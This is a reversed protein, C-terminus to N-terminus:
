STSFFNLQTHTSRGFYFCYNLNGGDFIFVLDELKVLDSYYKVMVLIFQQKVTTVQSLKCKFIFSCFMQIQNVKFKFKLSM